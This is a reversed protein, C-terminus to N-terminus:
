NIRAHYHEWLQKTVPDAEVRAGFSIQGKEKARVRGEHIDQPNPLNHGSIRANEHGEADTRVYINDGEEWFWTYPRRTEKCVM